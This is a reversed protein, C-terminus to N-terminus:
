LMDLGPEARADGRRAVADCALFEALRSTLVAANRVCGTWGAQLAWGVPRLTGRPVLCVKIPRGPNLMIDGSHLRSRAAFPHKKGDIKSEKRRQAKDQSTLAHGAEQSM